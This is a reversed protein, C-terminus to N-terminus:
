GPGGWAFRLRRDARACAGACSHDQDQVDRSSTVFRSLAGGVPLLRFDEVTGPAEPVPGVSGILGSINAGDALYSIAQDADFAAYAEMFGVAREEAGADAPSVTSAEDASTPTTSPNTSVNTATAVHEAPQEEAATDDDSSAHPEPL